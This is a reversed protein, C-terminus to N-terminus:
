KITCHNKLSCFTEFHGVPDRGGDMSKELTSCPCDKGFSTQRQSLVLCPNEYDILQSYLCKDINRIIEVGTSYSFIQGHGQEECHLKYRCLAEGDEYECLQSVIQVIIRGRTSGTEIEVKFTSSPLKGEITDKELRENANHSPLLM